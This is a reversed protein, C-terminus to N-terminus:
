QGKRGLAVANTVESISESSRGHRSAFWLGLLGFVAFGIGNIPGHVDAMRPITILLDERAEGLGYVTALLM